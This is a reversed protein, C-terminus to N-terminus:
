DKNPKENQNLKETEKQGTKFWFDGLGLGTSYIYVWTDGTQKDIKMIRNDDHRIIDYRNYSVKRKFDYTTDILTILFIMGLVMLIRMFVKDIM